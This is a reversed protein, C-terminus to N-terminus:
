TTPIAGGPQDATLTAPRLGMDDGNSPNARSVYNEVRGDDVIRDRRRANDTSKISEFDM